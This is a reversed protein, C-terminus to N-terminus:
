VIMQKISHRHSKRCTTWSPTDNWGDELSGQSGDMDDSFSFTSGTGGYVTTGQSAKAAGLPWCSPSNRTRSLSWNNSSSWRHRRRLVIFGTKSNSYIDLFIEMLRKPILFRRFRESFYGYPTSGCANRRDFLTILTLVDVASYREKEGRGSYNTTAPHTGSNGLSGNDTSRWMSKGDIHCTM